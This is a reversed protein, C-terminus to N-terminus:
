AALAAAVDEEYGLADNIEPETLGYDDKLIERGGPTSAIEAVDATTIRRGKVVPAGSHRDPDVEVHDRPHKIATWGGMSLARRVLKLDILTQGIVAHEIRDM